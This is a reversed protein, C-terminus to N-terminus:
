IKISNTVTAETQTEMESVPIKAPILELDTQVEVSATPIKKEEIVKMAAFSAALFSQKRYAGRNMTSRRKDEPSQGTELVKPMEM